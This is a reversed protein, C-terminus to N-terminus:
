HFDPVARCSDFTSRCVRAVERMTEDDKFRECERACSECIEACVGRILEHYESARTMFDASVQCIEACAMLTDVHHPDALAGRKELCYRFGQSCVRFCELCKRICEDLDRKTVVVAGTGNARKGAQADTGM